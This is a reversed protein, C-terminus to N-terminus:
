YSLNYMIKTKLIYSKKNGENENNEQKKKKKKYSVNLCDKIFNKINKTGILM